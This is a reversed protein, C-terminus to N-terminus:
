SPTIESVFTYDGSGVKYVAATGDMRLFQVGASQGAARGGETVGAADGAPVYVTASCNAPVKVQWTFQRGARKWESVVPGRVSDYRAKVWTIDGAVAPKLIIEKYGAATADSGIGALGRYFWELIQGLMFHNQSSRRDANWAETLSTAGMKLQYGYGPKGSQNNMDFIVDSRGGEALARLLYAYGVDGSTLGRARVDAV